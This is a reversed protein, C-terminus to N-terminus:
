KQNGMSSQFGTFSNDPLEPRSQGMVEITNSETAINSMRNRKYLNFSIFVGASLILLIIFVIMLLLLANGGSGSGNGLVKFPVTTEGSIPENDISVLGDMKLEHDGPHLDEPIELSYTGPRDYLIKLEIFRDEGECTVAIVSGEKLPVSFELLLVDGRDLTLIGEPYPLGGPGVPGKLVLFNRTEFEIQIPDLGEGSLDTLGDGIEVLYVKGHVLPEQPDVYLITADSSWSIFRRLSSSTDKEKLVVATMALDTRMPESFEILIEQDPSIGRSGDPPGSRIVVPGVGDTTVRLSFEDFGINGGMDGVSLRVTYEGLEDVKITGYSGEFRIGLEEVEWVFSSGGPFLLDNDITDNGSLVVIEGRVVIRDGGARVTPPTTDNVHVSFSVSQVNEGSDIVELKVFYDGPTGLIIDLVSGMKTHIEPGSISWIFVGNTLIDPDDDSIIPNVRLDKDEDIIIDEIPELRPTIGDSIRLDIGKVTPNGANDFIQLVVHYIGPVAPEFSIDMGDFEQLLDDFEISWHYQSIGTLDSIPGPDLSDEATLKTRKSTLNDTWKIDPVPPIEDRVIYFPDSYELPGNGMEDYVELTFINVGPDLPTDEEFIGEGNVVSSLHIKGDKIVRLTSGPETKGNLHYFPDNLIIEIDSFVDLSGPPTNDVIVHVQPPTVNINGAEDVVRIRLFLDNEEWIQSPLGTTDWKFVPGKNSLVGLDSWISGPVGNGDSDLSGQLIIQEADDEISIDLDAIGKLVTGNNPGNWIVWPAQLDHPAGPTYESLTSVLGLGNLASVRYFYTNGDILGIDRFDTRNDPTTGIKEFFGPVGSGPSTENARYLTHSIIEPGDPSDWGIQLSNGSPVAEVTINNPRRPINTDIRVMNSSDFEVSGIGERTVRGRITFNGKINDPISIMGNYLGDWPVKDPLIGDDRAKINTISPLGRVSFTVDRFVTANITVILPDMYTMTSGTPDFTVNNILPVLLAMTSAELTRSPYDEQYRVTVAEDGSVQVEGIGPAGLTINVLGTFVGTGGGGKEVLEVLEIEESTPDTTSNVMVTVREEGTLNTDTLWIRTGSGDAPVIDSEFGLTGTDSLLDGTAVFAYPQPGQLVSYGKITVNYPGPGASPIRVREVTNKRDYSTNFPHVLDNGYYVTGNPATVVLDLDNILKDTSTNSGPPDTWTLTIIMDSGNGSLYYNSSHSGGTTLGTSNDEFFLDGANSGEIALSNSLNVRGWGEWRNPISSWDGDLPRAGNIIAAKLLAASPTELNGIEQFYQRILASMGAVLPTSMSTGGMFAYNNNIGTYTSNSGWYHNWFDSITSARTSLIYTGPAVVDPKIREDGWTFGQSSFGAMQSIDNASSSISPRYNESAGVAVVNKSSAQTSLSYMGNAGNNGASFLVLLDKHNWIFNDIQWSRWSYNAYSSRSSWSNTHIRAGSNYADGFLTTYAPISLSGSSAMTSQMVLTANPAM